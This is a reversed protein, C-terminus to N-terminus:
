CHVPHTEERHSVWEGRQSVYQNYGLAIMLKHCVEAYQKLGFAPKKVESLFAFNPLSIAIVHLAPGGTKETDALFPLLKSM